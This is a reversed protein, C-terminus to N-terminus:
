PFPVMGPWSQLLDFLLAILEMGIYSGVLENFLLLYAYFVYTCTFLYFHVFLYVSRYIYIYIYIHM